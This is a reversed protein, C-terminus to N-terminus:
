APLKSKSLLSLAVDLTESHPEPLASLPFWQAELIELPRIIKPELPEQLQVVLFVRDYHVRKSLGYQPVIGIEQLNEKNLTIGVEEHVERQAADLASEGSKIGGGPLNWLQSGVSTRQLLILDNSCILVRTRRTGNLLLKKVPHGIFDIIRAVKAYIKTLPSM